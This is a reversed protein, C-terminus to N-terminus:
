RRAPVVEVRAGLASAADDGLELARLPRDLVLASRAAPDCRRGAAGAARGSGAQGVSGVLWTMAERADYLDAAAVMYGVISLMFESVGIGILIFRYGSIGDRWALM